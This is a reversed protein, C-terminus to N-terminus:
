LSEKGQAEAYVQAMHIAWTVGYITTAFHATHEGGRGLWDRCLVPFNQPDFLVMRVYDTGDWAMGQGSLRYGNGVDVRFAHSLSM